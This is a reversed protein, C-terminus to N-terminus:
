ALWQRTTLQFYGAGEQMAGNFDDNRPVGLAAAGDIFADILVHKHAINSSAYHVTAATFRVREVNTPNVASSTRCCM